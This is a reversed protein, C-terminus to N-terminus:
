KLVMVTPAGLVTSADTVALNPPCLQDFRPFPICRRGDASSNRVPMNQVM